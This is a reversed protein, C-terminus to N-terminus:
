TNVSNAQPAEQIEYEVPMGLLAQRARAAQKEDNSKLRVLGKLQHMEIEFLSQPMGARLLSDTMAHKTAIERLVPKFIKGIPTLPMEPLIWVQKPQAAPEAVIPGVFQRLQDETTTRGPKLSVFVVPIEGAYSDPQGVAAAVAVDPHQLMADEIMSPDINHAGRIIVDKARGTVYVREDKGVHGLDGSILWDREFTGANMKAEIYGPAVHPGRLALVGTENPGCPADLDAKGGVQRFARVETFPLRFGASGPSRVGSFPELTVVGACETMGFLNRLLPKGIHRDLADALETPLPSGGSIVLRLTSIDADIPVMNLASVVTPVGGIVTIRYQEVQKWTGSIFQKNRMGLRTPILLTAGASLVSLGYCFSGAVHFIPYGNVLVDNPRLRYMLAAAAAVFAENRHTHQALKPAGTTGGTHFYAAIRNPDPDPSFILRDKQESRILDDFSGDSGPSPGESDTHLVVQICGSSRLPKIVNNWIDLESNTGLVVAVKARAARVLSVLHDPRLMPNIPCARGAVEAAWLAIQGQPIHPTLIAVSDGPGINLRHFLNAAQRVNALLDSYSIIRNFEPHDIKSLYQIATNDPWNTASREIISYPTPAPLFPDIGSAEIAALDAANRLEHLNVMNGGRHDM